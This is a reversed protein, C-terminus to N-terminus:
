NAANQELQKTITAIIFNRLIKYSKEGKNKQQDFRIQWEARQQEDALITKTQAVAEQFVSYRAKQKNTIKRKNKHLPYHSAIKRGWRFTYYVDETKKLRGTMHDIHESFQVDAM